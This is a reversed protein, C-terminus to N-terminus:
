LGEMWGGSVTYANFSGTTIQVSVMIPKTNSITTQNPDRTSIQFTGTTATNVPQGGTNIASFSSANTVDLRMFGGLMLADNPWLNSAPAGSSNTATGTQPTYQGNAKPVNFCLAAELAWSVPNTSTHDINANVGQLFQTAGSQTVLVVPDFLDVFASPNTVTGYLRMRVQDGAALALAPFTFSLITTTKTAPYSAYTARALIAPRNRALGAICAKVQPSLEKIALGATEIPLLM